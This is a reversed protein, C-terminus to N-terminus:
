RVGMRSFLNRAMQQIIPSAGPCTGDAIGFISPSYNRAFGRYDDLGYNFRSSGSDFVLAGSAAQYITMAAVGDGLEAVFPSEALIQTGAPSLGHASDVEPGMYNVLHDGDSLGTEAFVWHSADKIVLDGTAGLNSNLNFMAGVVREEPWNVPPDRFLVTTEAQTDSSAAYPDEAADKYCVLIRDSNGAPDKELRAQWYISNADTFVAHVGADISAQLNNRMSRTWYEDHGGFFAIRANLLESSNQHLILDDIYTLDYGERELFRLASIEYGLGFLNGTGFGGYFPRNLSVKRARTAYVQPHGGAYLSGAGWANYAVWTAFGAVFKIDSTRADDRVMFPIYNQKGSQNQTLQALYLGSAWDTSDAANYPITLAYPDKWNCDATSTETLLSFNPQLIGTLQVTEMLRAGQGGYWGMRFVKLTYDPEDTSVFLRITEGRNVSPSSAYGQIRYWAHKAVPIVWSPDGTKTNEQQIVNPQFGGDCGESFLLGGPLTAAGAAMSLM